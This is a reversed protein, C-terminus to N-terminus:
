RFRGHIAERSRPHPPSVIRAGSANIMQIDPAINHMGGFVTACFTRFDVAKTSTEKEHKRRMAKYTNRRAGRYTAANRPTKTKAKTSM